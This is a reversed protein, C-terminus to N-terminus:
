LNLSARELLKKTARIGEDESLVNGAYEIGIFGQFAKTKEEKVIKLLKRFDINIENGATDFSRSKASVGRAFPMMEKTGLYRDYESECKKGTGTTSLSVCWNDFDPLTGCYPNNVQKMVDTLWKGDSSPGGHNEVIVGINRAQGYESLRGLADISASKMEEVTGKGRLNVRISHCGLFQAADIWQYHNEVSERRKIDDAEALPGATDVMILVNKVGLDGARQKLEGLYSKDKAKGLFYQDVYEVAHIGFDNKAKAPFDMNLLRGEKITRHLSWEALSIKFFDKKLINSFTNSFPIGALVGAGAAAIGAEKLFSRRNYNM